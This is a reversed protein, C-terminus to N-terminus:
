AKFLEFIMHMSHKLGAPHKFVLRIKSSHYTPSYTLYKPARGDVKVGEEIGIFKMNINTAFPKSGGNQVPVDPVGIVWIRVDETPAQIQKIMGGILEIDHNPEWDIVTKVAGTDCAAQTTLQNGAADYCKVTTFGYDSGDDKKSYPTLLSTSFELGHLQYHWGSTTIKVRQLPSGDSDKPTNDIKANTTPANKFNTEFDLQDANAPDDIRLVCEYQFPGDFAIIWYVKKVERWQMAMNRAACTAKFENWKLQASAM